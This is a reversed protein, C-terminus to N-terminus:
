RGLPLMNKECSSCALLMLRMVISAVRTFNFSSLPHASFSFFNRRDPIPATTYRVIVLISIRCCTTSNCPLCLMGVGRHHSLEVQQYRSNPLEFGCSQNILLDDKPRSSQQCNSVRTSSRLLSRISDFSIQHHQSVISFLVNIVAICMEPHITVHM